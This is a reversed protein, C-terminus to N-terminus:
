DGDGCHENKNVVGVGSEAKVAVSETEFDTHVDRGLSKSPDGDASRSL